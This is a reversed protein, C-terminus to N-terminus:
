SYLSYCARGYQYCHLAGLNEWKESTRHKKEGVAQTTTSGRCAPRAMNAAILLMM